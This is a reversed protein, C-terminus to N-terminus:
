RRLLTHEGVGSAAPAAIHASLEVDLFPNGGNPGALAVGVPRHATAGATPTVVASSRPGDALRDGPVPGPWPTEPRDVPEPRDLVALEGLLAAVRGADSALGSAFHAVVRLRLGPSTRIWETRPSTRCM